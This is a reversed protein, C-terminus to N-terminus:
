ASYKRRMIKVENDLLHTRARIDQANMRLIEDNIGEDIDMKELDSSSKHPETTM